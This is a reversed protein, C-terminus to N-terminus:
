MDGAPDYRPRGVAPTQCHRAPVGIRCRWDPQGGRHGRGTGSAPPAV